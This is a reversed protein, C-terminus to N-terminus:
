KNSYHRWKEWNLVSFIKSNIITSLRNTQILAFNILPIQLLTSSAM